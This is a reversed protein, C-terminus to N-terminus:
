FTSRIGGGDTQKKAAADTEIKALLERKKQLFADAKRAAEAVNPDGVAECTKLDQVQKDLDSKEYKLRDDNVRGNPLPRTGFGNGTSYHESKLFFDLNKALKGSSVDQDLKDAWKKLQPKLMALAQEYNVTHMPDNKHSDYLDDAEKTWGRKGYFGPDSEGDRLTTAYGQQIEVDEGPAKITLHYNWIGNGEYEKNPSPQYLQGGVGNFVLFNDVGPRIPPTGTKDNIGSVNIVFFDQKAGFETARTPHRGLGKLCKFLDPFKGEAHTNVAAFMLILITRRM